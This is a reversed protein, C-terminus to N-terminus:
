NARKDFPPNSLRGESLWRRPIKRGIVDLFGDNTHISLRFSSSL